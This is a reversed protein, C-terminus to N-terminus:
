LINLSLNLYGKPIIIGNVQIILFQNCHCHLNAALFKALIFRRIHNGLVLHQERCNQLVAIVDRVGLGGASGTQKQPIDIGEEREGSFTFSGALVPSPASTSVPGFIGDRARSVGAPHKPPM